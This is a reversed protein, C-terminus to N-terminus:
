QRTGTTMPKWPWCGPGKRACAHRCSGWSWTHTLMLVDHKGCPHEPWHDHHHDTPPRIATMHHSNLAPWDLTGWRWNNVSRSRRQPLNGHELLNGHQLNNEHSLRFSKQDSFLGHPSGDNHHEQVCGADPSRNSALAACGMMKWQRSCHMMGSYLTCVSAHFHNAHVLRRSTSV